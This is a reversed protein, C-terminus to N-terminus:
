APGGALRIAERLQADLRDRVRDVFPDLDDAGADGAPLIPSGYALALPPRFPRGWHFGAKPWRRNTGWIGVPVVPAGTPLAIRAVGSRIRLLEPPAPNVTGEPAIAVLLGDKLAALAHELADADGEGRRIPIQHFRRLIWGFFPREFFEAAVVFRTERRIRRSTEIALVPGDLPSVHNFVLIAPGSSPVHELGTVRLRFLLRVLPAVLPLGVRWWRNLEGAAM